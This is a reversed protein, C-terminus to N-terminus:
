FQMELREIRCEGSYDLGEILGFSQLTRRNISMLNNLCMKKDTLGERHARCANSEWFVTVVDEKYQVVVENGIDSRGLDLDVGFVWTAEAGSAFELDCVFPVVEATLVSPIAFIYLAVSGFISFQTLRM